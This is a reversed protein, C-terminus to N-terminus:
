APRATVGFVDEYLRSIMAFFLPIVVILGLCLTAFGALGLVMFFLFLLVFKWFRMHVARRSLKMAPLVKLGKDLILLPTFIWCMFLYWTVLIFPIMILIMVGVAAGESNLSKSLLPIAIALPVIAVIVLGLIIGAVILMYLAQRGYGFRFGAFSDNLTAPEGRFQKLFYYHLGAMMQPQVLFMGLYNVFPISNAAILILYGLITVGVCPWFNGTLLAWSRSLITGVNCDFGRAQVKQWLDEPDVTEGFTVVGEQLKQVAIPKCASCVTRGALSILQEPPFTGGCEACVVGGPVPAATYPNAPTTTSSQAPPLGLVSAYPLWNDMGEKWVLTESTITGSRLLEALDAENVPGAQTKDKTAYFWNM